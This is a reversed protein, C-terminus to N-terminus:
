EKMIKMGIIEEIDVEIIRDELIIIKMHESMAELIEERLTMGIVKNM